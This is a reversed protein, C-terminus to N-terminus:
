FLAEQKARVSAMDVMHEEASMRDRILDCKEPSQEILIARRNLRLCAVGTTGSGAFPDLVVDGEDTFDAVLELMLPLPKQTTHLRDPGGPVIPHDYLAHKGGGNWRKRGPPHVLTIAEVATAPRDGTFQPAGGRRIWFMSRVRELGAAQFSRRWLHMSDEDSFAMSWRQVIRALSNAVGRRTGATLHEFGLVTSSSIVPRKPGGTTVDPAHVSGGRRVSKHVHASYPPDTIAHQVCQDPMSRMVEICDGEVVCWRAEGALVAEITSM